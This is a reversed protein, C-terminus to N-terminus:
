DLTVFADDEVIIREDAADDIGIAHVVFVMGGLTDARARERAAADALARTSYVGLVCGGEYAICGELVFVQM